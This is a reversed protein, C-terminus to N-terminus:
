ASTPYRANEIDLDARMLTAPARARLVALWLAGVVMYAAFAYVLLNQPYAPAPYLSLVLCLAMLLAGAGGSAVLTLTLESRRWFYVPAAMSCLFYVIIFGYAAFTGFGNFLDFEAYGSWAVLLLLNLTAGLALALYPTQHQAHVSGFAAHLFGHRGLSYMMRGFANLSALACAFSSIAAGFYVIAKLSPRGILIDGFPAMSAGLKGVDDAFGQTIVYTTLVFFIGASLVTLQIANPIATRPARAERGLTAASEFGVFSFIAFVIAQATHSSAVGALDIQAHDLSFGNTHLVFASVALIIVVSVAELALGVRSSLRVDRMALVLILTSVVVYTVIDNPSGSVHLAVLMTKVFISTAVTLAVATLLYAALMAWGALFGWAPGLAHWVYIFFSGASPMRGALKGINIGVVMLALTAAVYVLCSATGALGAVVAVALAPTLTPSVNAVSQGLTEVFSLSDTKLDHM